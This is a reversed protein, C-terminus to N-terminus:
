DGDGRQNAEERDFRYGPPLRVALKRIDDLARARREDREIHVGGGPGATVAIEDGEKLALAQVVTAPLRLALSNGWKSVRAM